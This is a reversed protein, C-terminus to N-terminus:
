NETHSRCNVHGRCPEFIYIKIKIIKIRSARCINGNVGFCFFSQNLFFFIAVVQIHRTYYLQMFEYVCKQQFHHSSIFFYQLFNSLVLIQTLLIYIVNDQRCILQINFGMEVVQIHLLIFDHNSLDFSFIM